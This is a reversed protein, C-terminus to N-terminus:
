GEAERAKLERLADHKSRKPPIATQITAEAWALKIFAEMMTRASAALEEVLRAARPESAFVRERNPLVFNTAALIRRFLIADSQPPAIYRGSFGRGVRGGKAARVLERFESQVALLEAFARVEQASRDISLAPWHARKVPREVKSLEPAKSRRATRRYTPGNIRSVFEPAGSQRNSSPFWSKIFETAVFAHKADLAKQRESHSRELPTLPRCFPPLRGSKLRSKWDAVSALSNAKGKKHEKYDKATLIRSAREAKLHADVAENVAVRWKSFVTQAGGFEFIATRLAALHAPEPIPEYGLEFYNEGNAAGLLASTEVADDFRFLNVTRAWELTQQHHSTWGVRGTHWAISRLQLIRGSIIEQFLDGFCRKALTKVLARQVRAEDVLEDCEPQDDYTDVFNRLTV